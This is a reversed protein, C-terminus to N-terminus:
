LKNAFIVKIVKNIIPNSILKIDWPKSIINKKEYKTMGKLM